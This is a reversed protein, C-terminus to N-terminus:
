DADHRALWAQLSAREAEDVAAVAVDIAAAAYREALDARAKLKATEREAKWEAIEEGTVTKQEEAWTTIDAQAAAVKARGQEISKDVADLHNRVEQEATRARGDIKVKLANINSDVNALKLRLSENFQDIRQGM